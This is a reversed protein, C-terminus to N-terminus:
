KPPHGQEEQGEQFVSQKQGKKNPDHINWCEQKFKFEQGFKFANALVKAKTDQTNSVGTGTFYKSTNLCRALALASNETHWHAQRKNKRHRDTYTYM